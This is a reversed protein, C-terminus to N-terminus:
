LCPVDNLEAIYHDRGREYCLGYDIGEKQAWKSCSCLFLHLNPNNIADTRSISDGTEPNMLNINSQDCLHMIDALLDSLKTDSEEGKLGMIKSFKEIAMDICPLNLVMNASSMKSIDISELISLAVESRDQNNM